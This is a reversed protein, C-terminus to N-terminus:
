LAKAKAANWRAMRASQTPTVPPTAAVSKELVAAREIGYMHRGITENKSIFTVYPMVDYGRRYLTVLAYRDAFMLDARSLAKTPLGLIYDSWGSAAQAALNAPVGKGCISSVMENAIVGAFEDESKMKQVLSTTVFIKGGPLSFSSPVSSKLIGVRVDSWSTGDTHCKLSPVLEQAIYQGVTNAYILTEADGILSMRRLLAAAIAKSMAANGVRTAAKDKVEEVAVSTKESAQDQVDTIQTDAEDQITEQAEDFNEPTQSGHACGLLSVALTLLLLHKM